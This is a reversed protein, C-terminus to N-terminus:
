EMTYESRLQKDGVWLYVHIDLGHIKDMRSTKDKDPIQNVVNNHLFASVLELPMHLLPQM